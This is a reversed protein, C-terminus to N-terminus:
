QALQARQRVPLADVLGHAHMLVRLTRVLANLLRTGSGPLRAGSRLFAAVIEGTRDVRLLRRREVETRPRSSESARYDTRRGSRGPARRRRSGMSQDDVRHRLREVHQTLLSAFLGMMMPGDPTPLVASTSPRAAAIMSSCAPARFSLRKSESSTPAKIAPVASRPEKDSRRAPTRRSTAPLSVTSNM